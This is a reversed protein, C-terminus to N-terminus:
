TNVRYNDVLLLFCLLSLYWFLLFRTDYVGTTTFSAVHKEVLLMSKGWCCIHCCCSLKSSRSGHLYATQLFSINLRAYKKRDDQMCQKEFWINQSIIKQQRSTTVQIVISTTNESICYLGSFKSFVHKGLCSYLLLQVNLNPRDYHM